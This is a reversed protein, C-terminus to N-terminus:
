SFQRELLYPIADASRAGYSLDIEAINEHNPVGSFFLFCFSSAHFSWAHASTDVRIRIDVGALNLNM